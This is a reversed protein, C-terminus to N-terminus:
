VAAKALGIYLDQDEAHRMVRSLGLGHAEKILGKFRNLDLKQQRALREYLNKMPVIDHEFLRLNALLAELEPSYSKKHSAVRTLLQSEQNDTEAELEASTSLMGGQAPFPGSVALGRFDSPNELTEAEARALYSGTSEPQLGHHQKLAAEFGQEQGLVSEKHSLNTQTATLSGDVLSQEALPENALPKDALPKDALPKDALSSEPLDVDALRSSTLSTDTLSTDTLSRDAVTNTAHDLHRDGALAKAAPSQAELDDESALALNIHKKQEDINDITVNLKDGIALRKLLSRDSLQSIHLMGALHPELALFIGYPKLGTVTAELSIGPRYREAIEHWLQSLRKKLSLVIREKSADVETVEGEVSQGLSLVDSPHKLRKDSIERIPLLADVDAVLNVFAGFDKLGVVEGTVVDGPRINSFLMEREQLKKSALFVSRSLILRERAEDVEIIYGELEQGLFEELSTVRRQDIQLRPMYVKLDDNLGIDLSLSDDVVAIVKGHVVKKDQAIQRLSPWLELDGRAILKLDKRADKLAFRWSTTDKPKDQEVQNPAAAPDQKADVQASQELLSSGFEVNSTEASDTIAEEKAVEAVQETNLGLTSVSADTLAKIELGQVELFGQVAKTVLSFEQREFRGSRKSQKKLLGEQSMSSLIEKLELPSFSLGEEAKLHNLMYNFTMYDAKAELVKLSKLIKLKLPMDLVQWSLKQHVEKVPTQALTIEPLSLMIDDEQKQLKIQGVEAMGEVFRSLPQSLSKTSFRHNRWLVNGLTALHLSGDHAKLANLIWLDLEPPDEADNSVQSGQNKAPVAKLKGNAPRKAPNAGQPEQFAIDKDYFLVEDAAETLLTSVSRSVGIIIVKNRNRKLENVLPVLDGDGTVLVYTTLDHQTYCLRVAEVAMAVDASNKIVRGNDPHRGLIQVTEVNRMLFRSQDDHLHKHHQWNAFARSVGRQGYSDVKELLLGIDASMRYNEQLGIKLNEWDIFLAVGEHSKRYLQTKNDEITDGGKM